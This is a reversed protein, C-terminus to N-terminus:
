RHEIGRNAAARRLRGRPLSGLLALSAPAPARRRVPRHPFRCHRLNRRFGSGDDLFAPISRADVESRGDSGQSRSLGLLALIALVIGALALRRCRGCSSSKSSSRFSWRLHHRRTARRYRHPWPRPRPLPRDPRHRRYPRRRGVVAIDNGSPWRTNRQFVPHRGDAHRRGAACHHRHHDHRRTRLCPWRSFRWLRHCVAALMALLIPHGGVAHLAAGDLRPALEVAVGASLDELEDTSSASTASHRPLHSLPLRRFGRTARSRHRDRRVAASAPSIRCSLAPERHNAIFTLAEVRAM